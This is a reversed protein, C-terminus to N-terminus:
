AAERLARLSAWSKLARGLGFVLPSAGIHHLGIRSEDEDLKQVLSKADTLKQLIRAELEPDYLINM